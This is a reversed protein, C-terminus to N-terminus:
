IELKAQDRSPLCNCEGSAGLCAIDDKYGAEPLQRGAAGFRGAVTSTV